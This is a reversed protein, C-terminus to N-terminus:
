KKGIVSMALFVLIILFEWDGSEIYLFLFLLILVVDAIELGFPLKIDAISGGLGGLLRSLGGPEMGPASFAASKPVATAEAPAASARATHERAPPPAEEIRYFEGTNGVYRTM